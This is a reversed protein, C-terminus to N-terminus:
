ALFDYLRYPGISDFYAGAFRMYVFDLPPLGFYQPHDCIRGSISIILGWMVIWFYLEDLFDDLFFYLCDRFVLYCYYDWIAFRVPVAVFLFALSVRALSVLQYNFLM